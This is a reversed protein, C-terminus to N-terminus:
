RAGILKLLLPKDAANDFRLFHTTYEDRWGRGECLAIADYGLPETGWHDAIEQAFM